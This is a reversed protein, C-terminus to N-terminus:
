TDARAAAGDRLPPAAQVSFSTLWPAALGASLTVLSATALLLTRPLHSKM